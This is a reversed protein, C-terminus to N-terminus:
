RGRGDRNRTANKVLRRADSALTALDEAGRVDLTGPRITQVFRTRLGGEELVRIKGNLIAALQPDGNRIERLKLVHSPRLEGQSRVRAIAAAADDVRDPDDSRRFIEITQDILSKGEARGLRGIRETRDFLRQAEAEAIASDLLQAHQESADTTGHLRFVQKPQITQSAIAIAIADAATQRTAPSAGEEFLTIAQDTLGSRGVIDGKDHRMQHLIATAEDSTTLLRGLADDAKLTKLRGEHEEDLHGGIRARSITLIATDRAVVSAPHSVEIISIAQNLLDSRDQPALVHLHPALKLIAAAQEERNQLTFADEVVTARATPSLWPVMTAMASIRNATSAPTNDAHPDDFSLNSLDPLSLTSFDPLETNQGEAIQAPYLQNFQAEAYNAAERRAVLSPTNRVFESVGRSVRAFSGIDSPELHDTVMEMTERPLKLIGAPEPTDKDDAM